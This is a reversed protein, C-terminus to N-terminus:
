LLNDLELLQFRNKKTVSEFAAPTYHCKFRYMRQIACMFQIYVNLHVNFYHLRLFASSEFGLNLEYLSAIRVMNDAM